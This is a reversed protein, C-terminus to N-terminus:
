SEIIMMKTAISVVNLTAYYANENNRPYLPSHHGTYPRDTRFHHFDYSMLNVFDVVKGIAPIMYSTSAIVLPAGVAVSIIFHSSRRLGGGRRARMKPWLRNSKARLNNLLIVFNQKDERYGTRFSPFEWDIDVGDFNFEDCFDLVSSVFRDRTRNSSAVISFSTGGLDGISLLVKLNPNASKM